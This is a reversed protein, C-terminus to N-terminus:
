TKIKDKNLVEFCKTKSYPRSEIIEVKDGIAYKGSENHAHYKKSSNIIKKYLPHMYRRTVKVVLTKQNKDGVIVGRLIRKPM